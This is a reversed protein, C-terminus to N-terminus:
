RGAAALRREIERERYWARREREDLNYFFIWTVGVRDEPHDEPLPPPPLRDSLQIAGEAAADLPSKGSGHVLQLDEISGDRAIFFHVQTAGELGAQASLPIRWNGGVIRKVRAAYPGWDVDARSEFQIAAGEAADPPLRELVRDFETDPAAPSPRERLAERLRALKEDRTLPREELPPEPVPEVRPAPPAPSPPRPPPQPPPSPPLVDPPTAEPAEALSDREAVFPTDPPTAPELAPPSEVFVIRTREPPQAPPPSPRELGALGLLALHLLLSLLLAVLVTRREARERAERGDPRDPPPEAVPRLPSAM